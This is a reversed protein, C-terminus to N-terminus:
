GFLEAIFHSLLSPELLLPFLLGYLAGYLHADHAVNDSTKKNNDMYHSYALYAIGFLFGPIPIPIPFIILSNWPDFLISAFVMASVAGSAGVANYSSDYKHKLLSSISAAALASIYFIIFYLIGRYGYWAKFVSEVLDGFSYLVFMNFILHMWDAHILGHTLMRHWNKYKYIAYANFKFRDFLERNEFAQYSIFATFVIILITM